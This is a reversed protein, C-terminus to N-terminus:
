ATATPRPRAAATAPADGWFDHDAAAGSWALFRRAPPCDRGDGSLARGPDVTPRAAAAAQRRALEHQVTFLIDERLRSGAGLLPLRHRGRVVAHRAVERHPLPGAARARGVVRDPDRAPPAGAARPRPVGDRLRRPRCPPRAGCSAACAPRSSGTACLATATPRRRPGPACPASTTCIWPVAGTMEVLIFKREFAANHAVYAAIPREDPTVANEGIVVPWVGSFPNARAVDEDVIHHIASTM